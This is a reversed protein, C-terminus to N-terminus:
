LGKENYCLHKNIDFYIKMMAGAFSCGRGRRRCLAMGKINDAWIVIEDREGETVM